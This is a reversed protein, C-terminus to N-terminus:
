RSLTCLHMMITTEYNEIRKQLHSIEESKLYEKLAVRFSKWRRGNTRCAQLQCIIGLLRDCDARCDHGLQVIASSCSQVLGSVGSTTADAFADTQLSSGLQSLKTYIDSLHKSQRSVCEPSQYIEAASNLINSSFQVFQVVSAAISLASLPDM